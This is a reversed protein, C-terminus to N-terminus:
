LSNIKNVKLSATVGGPYLLVNKNSMFTVLCKEELSFGHDLGSRVRLLFEKIKITIIFHDIAFEISKVFANTKLSKSIKITSTDFMVSDFNYNELPENILFKGIPSDFSDLHNSIPLINKKSIFQGVFTNVPRRILEKPTDIQIIEGDRMVVIKDCIALAESSDHTVFLATADFSKLVASLENRLKDKVQSDLSNFPEDLLIISPNPALARALAVRQRQGGSLQHPFRNSFGSLGLLDLLGNPRSKDFGEKLGFCVNNWVTLHPFLAYDQFVMGVGRREPPLSSVCSSIVRESLVIEGQFPSEFGAILRLLTTKGCGSPGVLGVVEGQNISLNISKLTPDNSFNNGHRHWLDIIKLYENIM